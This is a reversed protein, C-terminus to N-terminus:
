SWVKTGESCNKCIDVNKRSKLILKRFREYGESRWINKFSMQNLEGLRYEGDKDFCCPVVKGDWTIVCAHWMRWCHNLLGSKIKYALGDKIYRSYKPNKPLLDSGSEFNYVQATKLALHDVGAEKALQQIEEIEGENHGFVIFQWMIFPTKSKMDRKWRVINKTGEIVKELSGGIRYKGYSEQKVGDISIILRSLGSEITKKCNEDTLYHANTSTATYINHQTAYSVMDTFDKNLYPEGQFYYTIYTLEKKLQDIVSKNLEPELMGIPRSFARLGSPCEPCRLNCSTTPELSIAIPNGRHYNKKTWKSLYYSGLIAVANIIRSPTLTKTYLLGDTIQAKSM